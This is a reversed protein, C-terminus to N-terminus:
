IKKDGKLNYIIFVFSIIRKSFVQVKHAPAGTVAVVASVIDSKVNADSAGNATVIVGEVKPNVIKQTAVVNEGGKETFIVEKKVDQEEVNRTGGESDTESTHSVTNNENYIPIVENSQSYTILVNVNDVGVMTELINKLKEELEYEHYNDNKKDSNALVTYPNEEEKKVEEKDQGLIANIAILTFIAIILFLILNEIKRKNTRAKENETNKVILSKIKNMQEKFM